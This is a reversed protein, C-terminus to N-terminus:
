YNTGEILIKVKYKKLESSYIVELTEENEKCDWAGFKICNAKGNAIAAARVSPLISEEPSYSVGECLVENTRIQRCSTQPKVEPAKNRGVVLVKAECAFLSGAIQYLDCSDYIVEKFQCDDPINYERCEDFAAAEALNKAKFPSMSESYKAATFPATLEENSSALATFSQLAVITIIIIKLNLM